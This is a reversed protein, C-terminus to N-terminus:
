GAGTDAAADSSAESSGDSPADSAADTGADTGGGDGCAKPSFGDPKPIMSPVESWDLCKKSLFPDYIGCMGSAPCCGTVKFGAVVYSECNPDGADAPTSGGDLLNAIDEESLCGENLISGDYGCAGTPLCCGSVTYGQIELGPCDVDKCGGDKGGTGGGTGGVSSDTGGTGSDTGGTGGGGSGGNDSESDGGCAPALYVSVASVVLALFISRRKTM